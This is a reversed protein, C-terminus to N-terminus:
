QKMIKKVTVSTASSVKLLYIGQALPATEFYYGDTIQQDFIKRGTIDLVEM